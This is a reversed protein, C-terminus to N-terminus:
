SPNCPHKYVQNSGSTTWKTSAGDLVTAGQKPLCQTPSITGAYFGSLVRPTSRMVERSVASLWRAVMLSSLYPQRSVDNADYTSNARSTSRDSPQVAPAQLVHERIRLQPTSNAIGNAPAQDQFLRQDVIDTREAINRNGEVSDICKEAIIGSQAMSTSYIFVFVINRGRGPPFLRHELVGLISNTSPGLEM